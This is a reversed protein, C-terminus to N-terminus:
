QREVESKPNPSGRLRTAASQLSTQVTTEVVDDLMKKVRKRINAEMSKLDDALEDVSTAMEEAAAAAATSVAVEVDHVGEDTLDSSAAAAAQATPKQLRAQPTDVDFLNSIEFDSPTGLDEVQGIASVKRLVLDGDVHAATLSAGSTLLNLAGTSVTGATQRLAIRSGYRVRLELDGKQISVTPGNVIAGQYSWALFVGDWAMISVGEERPSTVTEGIMVVGEKGGTRLADLESAVVIWPADVNLRIAVTSIATGDKYPAFLANVAFGTTPDYALSYSNAPWQEAELLSVAAEKSPQDLEILLRSIDSVLEDPPPPPPPAFFAIQACAASVAALLCTCLLVVSLRSM